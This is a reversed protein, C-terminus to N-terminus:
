KKETISAITATLNLVGSKIAQIMESFLLGEKRTM